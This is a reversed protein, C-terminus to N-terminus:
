LSQNGKKLNQPRADFEQTEVIIQAYSSTSWGRWGYKPFPRDFAFRPKTITEETRQGRTSVEATVNM